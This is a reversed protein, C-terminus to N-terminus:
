DQRVDLGGGDPEVAAYVNLEASPKRHADSGFVLLLVGCVAVIAGILTTPSPHTGFLLVAMLFALLPVGPVVIATTWSLSLRNIAGYWTIAGLFYVFIGCMAIAAAPGPDALEAISRGDFFLFLPVLVLAGYILRGASICEPSLPPMMELAILHATQWFLPTVFILMAATLPSFPDAGAWFVSAIGGLIVITALIQKTSPREGKVVAALLLSYVPESQLLVVGATARIQRLGFILMLTTVVTGSMALLFFRWAYRRDLLHRLEDRLHLLSLSCLAAVMVSGACFLLPDIRLAAYRFLIPQAAGIACNAFAFLIGVRLVSSNMPNRSIQM